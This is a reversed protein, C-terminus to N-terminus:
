DEQERRYDIEHDWVMNDVGCSDIKIKIYYEIMEWWIMINPRIEKLLPFFLYYYYYFVYSLFIIFWYIIQEIIFSLIDNYDTSPM